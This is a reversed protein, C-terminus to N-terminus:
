LSLKSAGRIIVSRTEDVNRANNPVSCKVVSNQKVHFM